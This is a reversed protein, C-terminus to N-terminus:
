KLHYRLRDIEDKAEDLELALTEPVIGVFSVFYHGLLALSRLAGEM